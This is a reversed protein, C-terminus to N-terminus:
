LSPRECDNLHKLLAGFVRNAADTAQVPNIDNEIDALFQLFLHWHQMTGLDDEAFFRTPLSLQTKLLSAHIMKGGLRSGELVYATGVKEAFSVPRVAQFHGFDAQPTIGLVALDAELNHCRPTYTFCFEGIQLGSLLTPELTAYLAHLADLARQYHMPTVSDRVLPNLLPHRDVAAHVIRTEARLREALPSRLLKM